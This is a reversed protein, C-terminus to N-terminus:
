RANVRDFLDVVERSPEPTLLTVAVAVVTAVIFGPTAPQMEYLGGVYALAPLVLMTWASTTSSGSSLAATFSSLRRGGLVYESMDKMRSAGIVAIVILLTFYVSFVAIVWASSM